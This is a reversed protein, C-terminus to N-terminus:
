NTVQRSLPLMCTMAPSIISTMFSGKKAHANAQINASSVDGDFSYRFFNYKGKTLTIDDSSKGIVSGDSVYALLTAYVSVIKKALVKHIVISLWKHKPASTSISATTENATVDVASINMTEMPLFDGEFYFLTTDEAEVSERKKNPKKM